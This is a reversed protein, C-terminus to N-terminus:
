AKLPLSRYRRGTLRYLANAVAPGIAPTSAEGLGSPYRQSPLLRVHIEPCDSMRALRYQHFNGSRVAGERVEVSEYLAASLGFVIGGELQAAASDAHVVTGCDAVCWVEAVRWDAADGVVSAVLAVATSGFDFTALGLARSSSEYWDADEIVADLCARLPSGAALLRRRLAVPDEGQQEALEDMFCEIAFTNYSYGVSRWITTALGTPLGAWRVDLGSLEYAFTDWGMVPGIGPESAAGQTATAMRCRLSLDSDAGSLAAISITAADRFAGHALDDERTWLLQVPRQLRAAIEVAEAVFDQGARRGFGGGLPLVNVTVREVPIGAVAAATQRAGEPAQTGVWVECRGNQVTATCNMPEMCAHSLFPVQYTARHVETLAAPLPEGVASHEAETMAESLRASLTRSDTGGNPSSWEVRLAARAKLVAATSGAVVAVGRETQFVDEVEPIAM